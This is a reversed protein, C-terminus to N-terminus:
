NMMNKKSDTKFFDVLEDDVSETLSGALQNKLSEYYPSLVKPMLRNFTKKDGELLAKRVKSASVDDDNRKIEHTSLDPDASLDFRYRDIQNQWTSLRDSGTGWLIPEYEPRLANFIEVISGYPIERYDIINKYEKKLDVFMQKILAPEFPQKELNRKKPRVAIVVVPNGNEKALKEIVKLHGLTPPQFRGIIFNVKKNGPQENQLGLEQARSENLFEDFTRLNKM